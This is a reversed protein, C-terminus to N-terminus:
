APSGLARAGRKVGARGGRTRGRRWATIDADPLFNMMSRCLSGTSKRLQSTLVSCLSRVPPLRFFRDPSLRQSPSPKSAAQFPKSLHV